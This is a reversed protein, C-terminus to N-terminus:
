LEMLVCKVCKGRAVITANRQVHAGFDDVGWLEVFLTSYLPNFVFSTNATQTPHPDYSCKINGYSTADRKCGEHPSFVPYNDKNIIWHVANVRVGLVIRMLLLQDFGVSWEDTSLNSPPTSTISIDSIFNPSHVSVV